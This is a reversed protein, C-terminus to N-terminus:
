SKEDLILVGERRSANCWGNGDMVTVTANGDRRLTVTTAAWRENPRRWQQRRAENSNNGHHQRQV